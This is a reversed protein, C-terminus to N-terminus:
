SNLPTNNPTSGWQGKTVLIDIIGIYSINPSRPDGGDHDCASKASLWYGVPNSGNQDLNLQIDFKGHKPLCQPRCYNEKDNLYYLQWVETYM